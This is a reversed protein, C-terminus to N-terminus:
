HDCQTVTCVLAGLDTLLVTVRQDGFEGQEEPNPFPVTPFEPDPEEQEPVNFVSGPSLGITQFARTAPKQGVGHM